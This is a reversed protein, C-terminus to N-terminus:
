AGLRNLLKEPMVSWSSNFECVISNYQHVLGLGTFSRAINNKIKKKIIIFDIFSDSDLHVYSKFMTHMDHLVFRYDFPVNFYLHSIATGFQRFCEILLMGPAHDYKHDFFFPNDLPMIIKARFVHGEDLVIPHSLVINIPNQKHVFEKAIKKNDISYLDVPYDLVSYAKKEKVEAPKTEKSVKFAVDEAHLEKAKKDGSVLASGDRVGLVNINQRIKEKDSM